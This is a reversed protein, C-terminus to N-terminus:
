VRSNQWARLTGLAVIAATESRLIKKELSVGRVGNCSQLLQQEAHEFGGEPGTLLAVPESCQYAALDLLVRLIPPSNGTEDCWLTLSPRQSSALFNEVGIPPMLTPISLRGCQEAAERARASVRGINIGSVVSYRTVLPQIHTAGLETVKEVLLEMARRKILAAAIWIEPELVQPRILESVRAEGSKRGLSLIKARWEGDVGNFLIISQGPTLRMVNSVYNIQNVNFQLLTGARLPLDVHLRLNAKNGM